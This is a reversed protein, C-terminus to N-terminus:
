QTRGGEHPVGNRVASSAIIQSGIPNTMLFFLLIAALKVTMMSFGTRAMLALALTIVAVSDIKSSNLIRGYVGKFRFLGLIGAGIFFWTLVLLANSLLIM